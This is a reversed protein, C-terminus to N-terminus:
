GQSDRRVELIRKLAKAREHPTLKIEAMRAVEPNDAARVLGCSVLLQVARIELIEDVSLNREIKRVETKVVPTRTPTFNQVPPPLASVKRVSRVPQSLVSEFEPTVVAPQAPAPREKQKPAVKKATKSCVCPSENCFFCVDLRPKRPAM